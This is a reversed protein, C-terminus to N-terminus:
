SLERRSLGIWSIIIFIVHLGLAISFVIWPNTTISGTPEVNYFVKSILYSTEATLDLTSGWGISPGLLSPLLALAFIAGFTFMVAHLSKKAFSSFVISLGVIIGLMLIVIISVATLEDASRLLPILNDSYQLYSLTYYIFIVPVVLVGITALAAFYKGLVIDIDRIPKSRLLPLTDREFEGAILDTSLLAVLMQGVLGLWSFLGITIMAHTRAQGWYIATGVGSSLVNSNLMSMLLALIPTAFFFVATLIRKGKFSETFTEWFIVHFRRPIFKDVFLLLNRKAILLGSKWKETSM